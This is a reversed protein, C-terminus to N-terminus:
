IRGGCGILGWSKLTKPAKSKQDHSQVATVVPNRSPKESVRRTQRQCRRKGCRPRSTRPAPSATATSCPGTLFVDTAALAADLQMTRAVVGEPVSRSRNGESRTREQWNIGAARPRIGRCAVSEEATLGGVRRGVRLLM